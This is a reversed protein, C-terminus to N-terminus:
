DTALYIKGNLTQTCHVNLNIEIESWKKAKRNNKKLKQKHCLGACYNINKDPFISDVWHGGLHTSRQPATQIFLGGRSRVCWGSNSCGWSQLRQYINANANQCKCPKDKTCTCSKQKAAAQTHVWSLSTDKWVWFLFVINQVPPSSFPVFRLHWSCVWYINELQQRGKETPWFSM